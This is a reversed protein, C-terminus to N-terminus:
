DIPIGLRLNRVVVGAEFLAIAACLGIAWLPLALVWLAVAAGIVILMCASFYWYVEAASPHAGLIVNIESVKTPNRAIWLTQVWDLTLMAVAAALSAFLAIALWNM